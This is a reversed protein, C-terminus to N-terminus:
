ARAPVLRSALVAVGIAVFGGIILVVARDAFVEFFQTYAHISFFVLSSISLFSGRPAKVFIAILLAAWGFSFVFEPIELAQERWQSRAIWADGAVWHEGVYDGWLSGVWFGFNVLFLGTRAAVTNLAQWTEGLRPRLAYLLAAVGGFLTITITPERVILAYSAHWYFTGTGLIAALALVALASLFASRYLLAGASMIVFITVQPWIAITNAGAELGVWGSLGITGMIAFARGLLHWSEDRLVYKLGTAVGLAVLALILGVGASPELALVGAAVGLAGFILIASIWATRRKEPLALKGLNAAMAPEMQGSSVLAKLDLRIISM